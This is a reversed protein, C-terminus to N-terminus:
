KDGSISNSKECIYKYDSNTQEVTESNFVYCENKYETSSIKNYVITVGVCLPDKLDINEETIEISLKSSM